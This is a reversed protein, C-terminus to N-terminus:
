RGRGFPSSTGLCASPAAAGGCSAGGARAARRRRECAAEAQRAVQGRRAGSEHLVASRRREQERRACSEHLVAHQAAECCRSVCRGQKQAASELEPPWAASPIRFGLEPELYWITNPFARDPFKWILPHINKKRVKQM